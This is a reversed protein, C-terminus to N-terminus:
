IYEYKALSIRKDPYALRLAVIFHIISLLFWGYIMEFYQAM